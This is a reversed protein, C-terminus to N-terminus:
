HPSAIETPLVTEACWEEIRRYMTQLSYSNEKASRVNWNNEVFPVLATNYESGKSLRDRPLLQKKLETRTAQVALERMLFQSSKHPTRIEINHPERRNLAAPEPILNTDVGLYQAFGERDALLWSEAEDVAFRFMFNPHLADNELWADRETAPRDLDALLIIRHYQALRNYKVASQRIQGGRAPDERIISIGEPCIENLLRKIIATTVPDESVIIVDM